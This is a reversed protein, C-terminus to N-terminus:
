AAGEGGRWRLVGVRRYPFRVRRVGDRILAALEEPDDLVWSSVEGGAPFGVCSGLTRIRM